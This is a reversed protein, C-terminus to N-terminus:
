DGRDLLLVRLVSDTLAQIDDRCTKQIQAFDSAGRVASFMATIGYEYLAEAREGLAGCLAICPVGRRKCRQGVGM